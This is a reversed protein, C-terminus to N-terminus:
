TGWTTPWSYCSRKDANSGQRAKALHMLNEQSDRLAMLEQRDRVPRAVKRNRGSGDKVYTIQYIM